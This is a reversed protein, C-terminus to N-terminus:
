SEVGEGQFIGHYGKRSPETMSLFVLQAIRSDRKLSFGKPNFVVLTSKGRGQYGADWISTVLAVGCRILSSRPMAIAVINKPLNVKENYEVRYAGSELELWGSEGFPLDQTESIVREENSFDVAGKSTFESVRRLTLDVGNGGIQIDRDVFGEVLPSSTDLLRLIDERSLVSGASGSESRECRKLAEM